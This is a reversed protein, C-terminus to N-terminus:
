QLTNLQSARGKQGMSRAYETGLSGFGKRPNKTTNHGGHKAHCSKHTFVVNSITYNGKHDLRHLHAGEDIIPKNCFFCVYPLQAVQEPTLDCVITSYWQPSYKLRNRISKLVKSPRRSECVKCEPRIGYKCEKAKSFGNVPKVKGCKTCKGIQERAKM